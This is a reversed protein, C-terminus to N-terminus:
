IPNRIQTLGDPKEGAIALYTVFIIISVFLCSFIVREIKGLDRWNLTLVIGIIAVTASALYVNIPTVQSLLGM